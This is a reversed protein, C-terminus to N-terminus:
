AAQAHRSAYSADDIRFRWLGDAGRKMVEASRGSQAASGDPNILRWASCVLATDGAVHCSACNIEIRFPASLFPAQAVAIEAKGRAITVGDLTFVADDHYLELLGAADRANYRRGFEISIDEPRAVGM